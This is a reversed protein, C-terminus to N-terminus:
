GSARHGGIRRSIIKPEHPASRGESLSKKYQMITINEYKKFVKSFYSSENYGLRYAVDAVGANQSFFYWKALIMKRMHIYEMVSVQYESRILRSLYGQSINCAATIETLGINNEQNNEIFEFVRDLVHYKTVASEAYIAVLVTYLYHELQKQEFFLHETLLLERLSEDRREFDIWRSEQRVMEGVVKALQDTTRGLIESEEWLQAAITPVRYYLEKFDMQAVLRGLPTVEEELRREQDDKFSLLLATIASVALPKLFFRRAQIDIALKASAYSDETSLAYVILEPNLRRFHEPDFSPAALLLDMDVFLIDVPDQICVSSMESLRDTRKLLEFGDLGHIIKSIGERFLYERDAVVVKVDM